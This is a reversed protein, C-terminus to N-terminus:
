YDSCRFISTPGSRIRLTLKASLPEDDNPPVIDIALPEVIASCGEARHIRPCYIQRQAKVIVPDFAVSRNANPPFYSM